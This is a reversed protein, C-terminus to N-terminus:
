TAICIVHALEDDNGEADAEHFSHPHSFNHGNLYIYTHINKIMPFTRIISGIKGLAEFVVFLPLLECKIRNGRTYCKRDSLVRESKLMSDCLYFRFHSALRNLEILSVDAGYLAGQEPLPGM